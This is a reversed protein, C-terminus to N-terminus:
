LRAGALSGEPRKAPERKEGLRPKTYFPCAAHEVLFLFTQAEHFEDDGLFVVGGALDRAQKCIALRGLVRDVLRRHIAEGAVAVVAHGDAQAAMDQADVKGVLHHPALLAAPHTQGGLALHDLRGVHGVRQGRRRPLAFAAGEGRLADRELGPLNGRQGVEGVRGDDLQRRFLLNDARQFVQRFLGVGDHDGGVEVALALQDAQIRQRHHALDVVAGGDAARAIGGEDFVLNTLRERRLTEDLQVEIQRVGALRALVDVQNPAGHECAVERQRAIGAEAIRAAGSAHLGRRKRQDHCLFLLALGEHGLVVPHKGAHTRRVTRAVVIRKGDRMRGAAEFVLRRCVCRIRRHFVRRARGHGGNFLLAALTARGGGEVGGREHRRCAADAHAGTAGHADGFREVHGAVDAIRTHVIRDIRVPQVVRPQQLHKARPIGGVLRVGVRQQGSAGKVGRTALLKVRVVRGDVGCSRGVGVLELGLLPLEVVEHRPAEHGRQRILGHDLARLDANVHGPLREGRFAVHQDHRPIAGDVLVPHLFVLLHRLQCLPLHQTKGLRLQLGLLGLRGRAIGGPAQNLLHFLVPQARLGRTVVHDLAEVTAAVDHVVGDLGRLEALGDNVRQVAVCRVDGRRVHGGLQLRLHRAHGLAFLLAVRHHQVRPAQERADHVLQNRAFVLHALGNGVGHGGVAPHAGARLAPAIQAHLAARLRTRAEDAAIAPWIAVDGIRQRLAFVLGDLLRARQAARRLHLDRRKARFGIHM